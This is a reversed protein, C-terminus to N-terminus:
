PQRIYYADVLRVQHEGTAFSLVWVSGKASESGSMALSSGTALGGLLGPIVGGQSCVVSTDGTAVIERVRAVTRDEHGRFGQESLLPETVVPVGLDRALDAVTQMCRVPPASHVRRAGFLPLVARLAAVQRWGTDDLTRLEDPGCWEARNGAQAHRVLLLTTTRIPAATVADIVQADDQYTVLARADAPRLWRVHNTQQGTLFGGLDARARVYESVAPNRDTAGAPSRPPGLHGDLVATHGTVEHVVRVAAAWVSEGPRRPGSPLGWDASRPRRVCAIEVEDGLGPRWLM